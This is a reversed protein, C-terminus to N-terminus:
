PLLDEVSVGAARALKELSTPSIERAHGSLFAMIEGMGIGAASAWDSPRLRHAIMFARLADREDGKHLGRPAAVEGMLVKPKPFRSIPGQEPEKIEAPGKPATATQRHAPRAERPTAHMGASRRIPPNKDFAM